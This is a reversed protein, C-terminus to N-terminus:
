GPVPDNEPRAFCRRCLKDDAIGEITDIITFRGAQDLNDEESSMLRGELYVREHVRGSSIDQTYVVKADRM